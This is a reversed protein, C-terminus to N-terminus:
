WQQMNNLEDCLRQVGGPPIQILRDCSRITTITTVVKEIRSQTLGSLKVLRDITSNEWRWGLRSAVQVLAVFLSHNILTLFMLTTGTIFTLLSRRSWYWDEINVEVNKIQIAQMVTHVDSVRHFDYEKGGYM